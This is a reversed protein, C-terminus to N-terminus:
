IRYFSVWVGLITMQLSFGQWLMTSLIGTLKTMPKELDIKILGGKQKKRRYEKVGENTILICDLIQRSLHLNIATLQM